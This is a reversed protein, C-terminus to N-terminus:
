GRSPVRSAPNRDAGADADARRSGQERWTIVAAREAPVGDGAGRRQRHQVRDGVLVQEVRHLADALMERLPQGCHVTGQDGAIRPDPSHRAMASRSSQAPSTSRAARSCPRRTLATCRLAMRSAGGRISVSFSTSSARGRRRSANASASAARGHGSVEQAVVIEVRGLQDLHEVEGIGHLRVAEHALREGARPGDGDDEVLRRRAGPDREADADGFETAVWQDDVGLGGLEAPAFRDFVCSAHEVPLDGGDDPPRELLLADLGHGRDAPYRHDVRQGILEVRALHEGVQLGDALVLPFQAPSM